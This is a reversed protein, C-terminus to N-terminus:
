VYMNLHYGNQCNRLHKVFRLAMLAVVEHIYMIIISQHHQPGIGPSRLPWVSENKWRKTQAERKYNIHKHRHEM